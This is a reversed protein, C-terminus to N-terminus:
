LIIDKKNKNDIYLLILSNLVVSISSLAMAAGAIMPNLLGSAAIPIGTINYFFAWFLNQKIKTKIKRGLMIAKYIDMLSNKMIIVDGTEMSIDSGSAMVFGVDASAIAIADNIGDGAFGTIGQKKLDNVIKVKDEPLLDAYVNEIGAQQSIIRATKINDGTALFINIKEKKFLEIARTTDDKIKDGIAIIGLIRKEDSLLVATFGKDQFKQLKERCFDLNINKEEIFKINGIYYKKNNVIGEIGYGPYVKFSVVEFVDEKNYEVMAKALPHESNKELSAAIKIIERLSIDSSFSVIDVVEPKGRTITGTKDIVLNKIKGTIEIIETNKFLIGQKAALGTGAIIAVPTALGLACPCAIVLVSVAAMLASTIADHLFYFRILFTLFAIVIVAPVFYSAIKDVLKQIPPKTAQVNEILSIIRQLVTDKGVREAKFKFSGYQNISGSLVKDGKNKEVPIPEGRIVSEDVFSNGEVVEGDVPIKEGPKIVVIDGTKINDISVIEEKGNRLIVITEPSFEILQKIADGTKRKAKKELYRGLIIVTILVSSTEFYLHHLNTWFLLYVSYFYAASTGLAVLTDMNASFDKLAYFTNKYFEMGIFFQVFTAFTFIIYGQFPIFDPKLIMSLIFVPITLIASILLKLKLEKVEDKKEKDLVVKYGRQEISKILNKEDIIKPDYSVYANEDALNVSVEKVGNNKMLSKEIVAVCSACHMGKIKFEKKVVKENQNM